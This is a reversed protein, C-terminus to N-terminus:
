LCEAEEKLEKIASMYTEETFNGKHWDIQDEIFSIGKGKITDAIIAIPREHPEKTKQLTVLLENYNHGDIEIADFGFSQWKAKLDGLNKIKNTHDEVQLGNNDVIVTLNALGLASTSMASEWVTGEQLEGDGLIVYTHYTAKRLRAALAIGNGIGLGNGLSGSTYDIGPTKRMDPHGQLIGNFTRLTNIYKRSFFGRGMLTVYLAPAAHGKSLVLRDRDEWAPHQPDIDMVAYYLITLLDIVSLSGGTHGAHSLFIMEVLDQRARNGIQRLEAIQNM